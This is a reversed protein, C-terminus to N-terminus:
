RLMRLSPSTFAPLLPPAGVVCAGRLSGESHFECLGTRGAAYGRSIAIAAVLIALTSSATGLDGTSMAPFITELHERRTRYSRAHTMTMEWGSYREGNHNSVVFEVQAENVRADSLAERIARVLGDGVSFKSSDVPNPEVGTAFGLLSALPVFPSERGALSLSLFVAGEGPIVGQPNTPAHIRGSQNLREIDEPNVLSDVGGVICRDVTRSTLLDRATMLAVTLDSAGRLVRSSKHLPMGMRQQLIWILETASLGEMGPHNRSVDPVCILLAVPRPSPELSKACEEIAKLAMNLLWDRPTRRLSRGAKVQASKLLEQPPPRLYSDAVRNVGARIAACTALGSLGVPTVAGISDIYLSSM